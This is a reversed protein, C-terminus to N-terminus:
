YRVQRGEGSDDSMRHDVRMGQSRAWDIADVGIHRCNNVILHQLRPLKLAEKVGVGTVETGSLNLVRLQEFFGDLLDMSEDNCGYSETLSM